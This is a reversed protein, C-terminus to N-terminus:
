HSVDIGCTKVHKPDNLRKIDTWLYGQLANYSRGALHRAGLAEMERGTLTTVQVLVERAEAMAAFSCVSGRGSGFVCFRILKTYRKQKDLNCTSDNQLQQKHNDKLLIESWCLWLEELRETLYTNVCVSEYTM